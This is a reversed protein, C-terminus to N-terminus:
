RSSRSCILTTLLRLRATPPHTSFRLNKLSSTSKLCIESDSYRKHIMKGQTTFMNESQKVSNNPGFSLFWSM